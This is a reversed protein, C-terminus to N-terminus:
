IETQTLSERLSKIESAKESIENDQESVGKKEKEVDFLKGFGSLIGVTNAIEIRDLLEMEMIEEKTVEPDDKKLTVYLLYELIEGGKSPDNKAEDSLKAYEASERGTLGFIRIKVKDIGLEIEQFRKTAIVRSIKGM